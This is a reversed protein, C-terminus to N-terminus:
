LLTVTGADKPGFPLTGVFTGAGTTLDITFLKGFAGAGYLAPLTPSCFGPSSVTFSYSGGLQATGNVSFIVIAFSSNAPATFQFTLPHAPPSNSSFGSDGLYRSASTIDSAAFPAMFAAIQYNANTQSNVTLAVAVCVPSSTPNTFTYADFPFTGSGSNGPFTNTSCAGQVGGRFLRTSMTGTTAPAPPSGLSATFACGSQLPKSDVGSPLALAAFIFLVSWFM